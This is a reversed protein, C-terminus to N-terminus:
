DELMREHGKPCTGRISDHFGDDDFVDRTLWHEGCYSMNCQPCFFCAVEKDLSHLVRANRKDIAHRFQEFQDAAIGTILTSTFSVRKIESSSPEGFLWIQGAPKGCEACRFTAEAAIPKNNDPM